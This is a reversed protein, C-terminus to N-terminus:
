AQIWSQYTLQGDLDVDMQQAVGMQVKPLLSGPPGRDGDSGGCM